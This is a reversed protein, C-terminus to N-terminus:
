GLLIGSAFKLEKQLYIFDGLHRIIILTMTLTILDFFSYCLLSEPSNVSSDVMLKLAPLSLTLLFICNQSLIIIHLPIIQTPCLVPSTRRPFSLALLNSHSKNCKSTNTSKNWTSIHGIVPFTDLFVINKIHRSRVRQMQWWQAAQTHM